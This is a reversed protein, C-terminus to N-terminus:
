QQASAQGSVSVVHPLLRQAVSPTRLMQLLGEELSERDNCFSDATKTTLRVPYGREGREVEFLSVEPGQPVKLVFFNAIDVWHRTAGVPNLLLALGSLVEKKDTQQERERRQFEFTCGPILRQTLQLKLEDFVRDIEANAAAANRASEIGEDLAPLFNATM